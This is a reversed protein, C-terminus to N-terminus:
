QTGETYHITLEYSGILSQESHLDYRVHFQGETEHSNISLAQTEIVMDMALPGNTYTGVRSSHRELPLRMQVAGTRMILADEPDLKIMTKILDRNQEEEYRLYRNGAREVIEGDIELKYMDAEQGPHQIASQLQIKVPMNTPQTGM